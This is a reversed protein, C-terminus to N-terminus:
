PWRISLMDKFSFIISRTKLWDYYTGEVTKMTIKDAFQVTFMIFPVLIFKKLGGPVVHMTYIQPYNPAILVM